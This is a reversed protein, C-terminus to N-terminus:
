KLKENQEAQKVGEANQGSTIREDEKVM